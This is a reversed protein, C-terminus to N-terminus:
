AYTFGEALNGSFKDPNTVTVDVDGADHAPTECTLTTSNTVVVSKAYSCGFRVTADSVFHKGTITVTDGGATTGTAPSLSLVAPSRPYALVRYKAILCNVVQQASAEAAADPVPNEFWSAVRFKLATLLPEPLAPITDADGFVLELDCADGIQTAAAILLSSLRNNLNADDNNQDIGLWDKIITLDVPTKM